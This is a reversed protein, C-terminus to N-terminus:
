ERAPWAGAALREQLHEALRAALAIITCTLNAYGGTPCVGPGMAFLNDLGHVRCHRDLVGQRPDPAMRTTGIHYSGGVHHRARIEDDDAALWNATRLTGAGLREFGSALLALTRAELQGM